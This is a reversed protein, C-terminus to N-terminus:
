ELCLAVIELYPDCLNQEHNSFNDSHFWTAILSGVGGVPGLGLVSPVRVVWNGFM